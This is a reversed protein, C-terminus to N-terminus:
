FVRLEQKQIQEPKEKPKEETPKKALRYADVVSIVTVAMNLTFGVQENMNVYVYGTALDLVLFGVARWVRGVYLQGLGAILLSLAAALWPNKAM